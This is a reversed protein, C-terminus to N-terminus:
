YFIIFQFFHICNVYPKSITPSTAFISKSSVVTSFLPKEFEEHSDQFVDEEEYDGDGPDNEYDDDTQVDEEVDKEVDIVEIEDELDSTTIKLEGSADFSNQLPLQPM